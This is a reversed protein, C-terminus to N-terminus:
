HRVHDRKLVGGSEIAPVGRPLIEDVHTFKPRQEGSRSVYGFRHAMESNLACGRDKGSLTRDPHRILLFEDQM